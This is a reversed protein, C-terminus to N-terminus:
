QEIMTFKAGQWWRVGSITYFAGATRDGVYATITREVGQPDPYRLTHFVRSELNTLIANLDAGVILEYEIGVTRKRAIFEMAMRGSSARNAKTIDYIGIDLKHPEPLMVGNLWIM